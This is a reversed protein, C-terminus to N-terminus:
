NAQVLVLETRGITMRDHARLVGVRVKVGNIKILNHAALDQIEVRDSGVRVVCHYKSVYEDNIVLDNDEGRGIRFSSNCMLRHFRRSGNAYNIKFALEACTEVTRREPRFLGVVFIGVGTAILLLGVWYPVQEPPRVGFLAGIVFAVLEKLGLSIVGVGALILVAALKAYVPMKAFFDTRLKKSM